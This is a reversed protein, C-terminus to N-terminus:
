LVAELQRDYDHPRVVVALGGADTITQHFARQDATLRGSGTKCEVALLRGSPPVIALIDTSGKHGFRIFREGVKVAGTNNAWSPIGRVTLWELVARTLETHPNSM